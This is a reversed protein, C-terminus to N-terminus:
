KFAFLNFVMVSVYLWIMSERWITKQENLYFHAILFAAPITALAVIELGITVFGLSCGVIFLLMWYFIVFFKRSSVKMRHYFSFVSLTGLIINLAVVGSVIWFYRNMLYQNNPTLVQQIIIEKFALATDNLYTYAWMFLWPFCFGVAPIVLLRWNNGKQLVFISIWILPLLIIAPLYLLSAMGLFFSANFTFTIEDSQHYASLTMYISILVITTALHIPLLAHLTPFSSVTVLYVIGSLYSRKRLFLLSSGLQAIFFANFVVLCFAIFVQLFAQDKLLNYIFLYVPMATNALEPALVMPTHLAGMWFLFGILPILLPSLLANSNLIRFLM